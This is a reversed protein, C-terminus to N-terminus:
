SPMTLYSVLVLAALFIGALPLHMYLKHRGGNM